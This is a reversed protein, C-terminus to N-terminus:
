YLRQINLNIKIGRYRNVDLTHFLVSQDNTNSVGHRINLEWVKYYGLTPHNM